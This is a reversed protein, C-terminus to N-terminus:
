KLSIEGLQRPTSSAARSGAPLRELFSISEAAEDAPIRLVVYAEPVEVYTTKLTGSGPVDEFCMRHVLPNNMTGKRLVTRDGTKVQYEIGMAADPVPKCTGVVNTAGLLSVGASTVRLELVLIRPTEPEAAGVAYGLVVALLSAWRGGIRFM